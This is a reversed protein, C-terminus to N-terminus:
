DARPIGLADEVIQKAVAVPDEILSGGLLYPPNVFFYPNDTRVPKQAYLPDGTDPDDGVYEPPGWASLVVKFAPDEFSVSWVKVIYGAPTQWSFPLKKEAWQLHAVLGAAKIRGREKPDTVGELQSSIDPPKPM